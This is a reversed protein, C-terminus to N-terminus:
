ALHGPADAGCCNRGVIRRIVSGAPVPRSSGCLVGAFVVDVGGNKDICNALSLLSFSARARRRRGELTHSAWGRGERM